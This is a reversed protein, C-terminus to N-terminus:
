VLGVERLMNRVMDSTKRKSYQALYKRRGNEALGTRYREDDLLRRVKDSVESEAEFMIGDVGDVLLYQNFVDRNAIPVVGYSWAELIPRSFHAKKNNVLLLDIGEYIKKTNIEFPRWQIRLRYRSAAVAELFQREYSDAFRRTRLKEEFAALSGGGWFSCNVNFNAELLSEFIRLTGISGKIHNIGGVFGIEIPEAGRTRLEAETAQEDNCTNHITFSSISNSFQKRHIESIFCSAVARRLAASVIGRVLRGEAPISQVLVIYRYRLLYTIAICQILTYEGYLVYDPRVKILSRFAVWCGYVFKLLQGGYRVLRNQMTDFQHVRLGLPIRLFIFRDVYERTLGIVSEDRFAVLHISVGEEHLVRLYQMVYHTSGAVSRGPLFVLCKKNM